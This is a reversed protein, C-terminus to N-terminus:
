DAITAPRSRALITSPAPRWVLSTALFAFGMLGLGLSAYGGFALLLGGFLGGLASGVQFVAANLSMTTGQGAPSTTSVLTVLAVWGFGGAVAALGVMGIAIEPGVPLALALGLFVGMLVTGIGYTASLNRDGLRGGAVKTGLFYGGGGVMYAWGIESTALGLEDGLYAGFYTLM